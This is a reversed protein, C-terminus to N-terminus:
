SGKRKEKRKQEGKRKRKKTKRKRKEKVAGQLLFSFSFCLLSFSFSFLFPFLLSLSTLVGLSPFKKSFKPTLIKETTPRNEHCIQPMTPIILFRLLVLCDQENKTSLQHICARFYSNKLMIPAKKTEPKWLVGRSCCTHETTYRKGCADMSAFLRWFCSNWNQSCTFCYKQITNKRIQPPWILDKWPLPFSTLIFSSFSMEVRDTPLHKCPATRYFQLLVFDVLFNVFKGFMRAHVSTAHKPSVNQKTQFPRSTMNPFWALDRKQIVHDNEYSNNKLVSDLIPRGADLFYKVHNAAMPKSKPRRRPIWKDLCLAMCGKVLTHTVLAQLAM